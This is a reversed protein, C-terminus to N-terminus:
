PKNINIGTTQDLWVICVYTAKSLFFDEMEKFHPKLIGDAKIKNSIYQM